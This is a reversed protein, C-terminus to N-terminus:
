NRKVKFNDTSSWGRQDTVVYIWADQLHDFGPEPYNTLDGNKDKAYVRNRIEEWLNKSEEVAYLNLSDMLTIGKEIGKKCPFVNFGKLLNPYKQTESETLEKNHFGDRLKRWQTDAYDVIIKDQKSLKLRCYFKGIEKISMPLYNIERCYCNNKDFKVGVMGAPAATGFDQGYFEKFPLAMYEKLSIPKVKKLIQGKKGTSAYGKIATFYYHPNYLISNIDGYSEYRDIIHQPLYPNDDYNTQICLFGKTKKPTIKFYGDQILETNFYRKLIFHNVDPTNLIILILSNEKRISDAFINFKEEDRIDEGEEIVAIDVNSISKMNTTKSLSSARFGKTFVLMEDTSKDKIGTELRQYISNFVGSKNATDYRLLIENLISERILAKEDRLVVCRKKKITSQFSIWKSVEYTKAGGRGGICIILNTDKPLNYLPDFQPLRKVTVKPKM